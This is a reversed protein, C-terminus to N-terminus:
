DKDDQHYHPSYIGDVADTVKQLIYGISRGQYLASNVLEHLCHVKHQQLSHLFRQHLDLTKHLRLRYEQAHQNLRLELQQHLLYRNNITTKHLKENDM